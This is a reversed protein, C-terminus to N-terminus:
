ANSAIQLRATAKGAALSLDCAAILGSLAPPGEKKALPLNVTVRGEDFSLWRPKLFADENSAAADGVADLLDELLEKDTTGSVQVPFFRGEKDPVSPQPKYILELYSCVAEKFLSARDLAEITVEFGESNKKIDYSM